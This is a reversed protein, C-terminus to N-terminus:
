VKLEASVTTSQSLAGGDLVPDRLRRRRPTRIAFLLCQLSAAGLKDGNRNTATAQALRYFGISATVTGFTRIADSFCQCYHCCASPACFQDASIWSQKGDCTSRCQRPRLYVRSQLTNRVSDRGCGTARTAGASEQFAWFGALVIRVKRPSKGNSLVRRLRLVARM